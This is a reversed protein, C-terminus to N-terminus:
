RDVRCRLFLASRMSRDPWQHSERGHRYWVDLFLVYLRGNTNITNELEFENM